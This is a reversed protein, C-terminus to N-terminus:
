ERQLKGDYITHGDTARYYYFGAPWASLDIVRRYKGSLVPRGLQDTIQVQYDDTNELEPFNFLGDTSPNPSILLKPNRQVTVIGEYLDQEIKVSDIKWGALSDVTSDSIFRFRLFYPGSNM